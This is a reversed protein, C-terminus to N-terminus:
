AGRGIIRTWGLCKPLNGIPTRPDGELGIGVEELVGAPLLEALRLQRPLGSPLGPSVQPSQFLGNIAGQGPQDPGIPAQRLWATAICQAWLRSGPANGPPESGFPM